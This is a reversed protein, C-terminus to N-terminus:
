LDTSIIWLSELDEAIRLAFEGAIKPRRLPDFELASSLLEIAPTSLKVPLGGLLEQVRVSLDMSAYPLLTSLRSGTLMEIIIKALSYIDTSSDAYGIAQEPAMYYLTGAARSLGHMTEDPDKVIAISFDILVLEHGLMSTNRIMLNEPKLDRHCIDHAHIQDLASGAQRLYMAIEKPALRREELLDRLTKGDIFEMALYPTGSPTTGYGYIRVVNPHDIQALARVEQHFRRTLWEKDVLEQRFIKIACPRGNQQLDRGEVITAFGGRALVHGVKFRSELVAGDLQQLEPSLTTLRWEALEPLFKKAREQRKKWWRQGGAVFTGGLVLYGYLVPWTFWIPKLVNFSKQATVSWVSSGLQAQVELRHSGWHLQGLRLITDHTTSWEHQDPLLRYRFHLANRRDFQLSGIYATLNAGSAVQDIAEPMLVSGNSFSFGSIFVLPTPFVVAFSKDPSFHVITDGAGFWVSSDEDAFFAQQNANEAPLGDEGNLALWTGVEAAAPTALDVEDATGRWLWGNRDTDLFSTVANGEPSFTRISRHDSAANKIMAFASNDAYGVWVDGNPHAAISMCVSDPLGDAATIAQWHGNSRYLVKKGHCAWLLARSNDAEMDLTTDVPLNEHKMLYHTGRKTVQSITDDQGIWLQKDATRALRIGGGGNEAGQTLVNGKMDLQILGSSTTALLTQEPAALLDVNIAYKPGSFSMWFNRESNLERIGEGGEAVFIHDGVRAISYPSSLGNDATWYELQFPYMFRYLGDNGALWLTGDKALVATNLSSPVGNQARAIRFAGPRGLMLNHLLLISGDPTEQIFGQDDLNSWELPLITLKTGNAEPCNYGTVANARIWFCGYRDKVVREASLTLPHKLPVIGGDEPKSTLIQDRSLQCWGVPCPFHTSGDGSVSLQGAQKQMIREAKWDKGQRTFRYLDGYTGATRINGLSALMVEASLRVVSIGSEGRIKTLRGDFYRYLGGEPIHSSDQDKTSQNPM